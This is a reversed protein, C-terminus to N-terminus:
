DDDDSFCGVIWVIPGAILFVIGIILCIGWHLLQFALGLIPLVFALIVIVIGALKIKEGSAV